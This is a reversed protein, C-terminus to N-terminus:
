YLRLLGNQIFTKSRITYSYIGASLEPLQVQMITGYYVEELIQKGTIDYLTITYNDLEQAHITLQQLSGIPNPYIIIKKPSSPALERITTLITASDSAVMFQGFSTVNLDDSFVLQTSNMVIDCSDIIAGWTNGEARTTRQYLKYNSAPHPTASPSELILSDLASFITNNGYNNIIWYGSTALNNGTIQDPSVNLRSVVIEGDPLNGASPFHIASFAGPLSYAGPNTVITKQSSGGGVPATSVSRNALAIFEGHLIGKRDQALSASSNFQYYHILNPQEAEYKTLHQTARMEDQSLATDWVCVEDIWGTFNRTFWDAYRGIVLDGSWNLNSLNAVYSSPVGNLYVTASDPSVVVAVHSWENSPVFLGSNWNWQAGAWQFMLENNTNFLLGAPVASNSHTIIGTYQEQITDPRIWASLTIQNTSIGVNETQVYDNTGSLHLAYGPITDMTCGNNISIFNSLVQTDSGLPDTVTLSVSYNGPSPFLVKPNELNSSSPTGGQFQWSYTANNRAASHSAFYFTDRACYSNNRNVSIQAVPGTDEYFDCEYVSHSTGNRLKGGKYYPVLQVSHTRFPLGNNFLAWNTMSNNKYYVANRTGLYLGGSSGKQHEINTVYVGDLDSTTSNQWSQGGDISQYIQNGNLNPSGEYKSVRAAWITNADTASITLDYTVWRDNPITSTDPTVDSWNYGGDSSRFIKRDDNIGSPHYNLYMIDPNSWAIELSTILGSGFTKVQEWTLGNNESKWLYYYDTTYLTNYIQPHFSMNGSFGVTLGAHPPHLFTSTVNPTARNGSLIKKGFDSFTMRTHIPHVFGRYRDGGDTSLWNNTYVQNDKLLTGNHFTGGLMVEGDQFGAGFGWFDTGQIGKMRPAYISGNDTSYFIGGDCAIWIEGNFFRIDHIDAHIYNNKYSHNWQSPCSFTNGGDSSVWLNVGGILVSDANTPSVALGVDYYYQGGNGTGDDNWHMLNPNTTSPYNPMHAGCCISTWSEGADSSTYIGYLGSVFGIAGTLLAYIKNSDAPSVAIETRMQEGWGGVPIPWGNPKHTFTLGNDISKYFETRNGVQKIAYVINTLHPHFEIEQFVGAMVQTWNNGNDVTRYLGESSALILVNTFVPHMVIDPIYHSLNNFAADGIIQWSNGGNITRYVKNDLDSAAYVVQANGHNIEIARVSTLALDATALTWNKGNDISKWVGATATGAYLLGPTNASKEVTYIHAAGCSVATSAATKDFDFPGIGQWVSSPSRQQRLQKSKELYTAKNQQYDRKETDTMGSWNPSRSANRLWRKYYQTYQNKEFPHITYHEDFAQQVAIVDVNTAYMLQVWDPLNPHNKSYPTQLQQAQIEVFFLLGLLSLLTLKGM